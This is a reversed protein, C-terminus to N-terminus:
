GFASRAFRSSSCTPWLRTQVVNLGRSGPGRLQFRLDRASLFQGIVQDFKAGSYRVAVLSGGFLRVLDNASSAGTARHISRGAGDLKRVFGDSCSSCRPRLMNPSRRPLRVAERLTVRLEYIERAASLLRRPFERFKAFGGVVRLRM